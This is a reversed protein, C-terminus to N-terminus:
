ITRENSLIKLLFEENAKQNFRRYEEEFTLNVDQSPLSAKLQWKDIENALQELEFIPMKVLKGRYWGGDDRMGGIYWSLGNKLGYHPHSNEIKHILRKKISKM